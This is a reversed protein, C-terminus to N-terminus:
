WFQEHTRGLTWAKEIRGLGARQVHYFPVFMLCVFLSPFSLLICICFSELIPFPRFGLATSSVGGKLGWLSVEGGGGGWHSVYMCVYM